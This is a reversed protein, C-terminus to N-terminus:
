QASKTNDRETPAIKEIALDLEKESPVELLLENAKVTKHKGRYYIPLCAYSTTINFYKRLTEYEKDHENASPTYKVVQLLHNVPKGSARMTAITEDASPGKERNSFEFITLKDKAKALMCCPLEYEDSDDPNASIIQKWRSITIKALSPDNFTSIPEFQLSTKQAAVMKGKEGPPSTQLIVTHGVPGILASQIHELGLYYTPQGDVTVIEDGNKIGAKEAPGKAFVQTITANGDDGAAFGLGVIGDGAPLAQCIRKIVTKHSLGPRKNLKKGSDPNGKQPAMTHSVQVKISNRVLNTAITKLQPETPLSTIIDSAKVTVLWPQYVPILAYNGNLSLYKSLPTYGPDSRTIRVVSCQSVIYSGDSHKKLLELVGPDSEKDTFEFLTPRNHERSLLAFPLDVLHDLPDAAKGAENSMTETSGRWKAVEYKHLNPDKFSEVSARTITLTKESGGTSKIKLKVQAGSEGTLLPQLHLYGMYRTDDGGVAMIEDGVKLGAKDAPSGKYIDSVSPYGQTGIVYSLGLIGSNSAFPEFSLSEARAPSHHNETGQAADSNIVQSVLLLCLPLALPLKNM